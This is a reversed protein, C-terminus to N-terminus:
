LRSIQEHTYVFVFLSPKYCEMSECMCGSIVLILYFELYKANSM